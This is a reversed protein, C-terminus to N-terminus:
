PQELLTLLRPDRKYIDPRFGLNGEDDVMATWYVILLPVRVPLLVNLPKNAEDSQAFKKVLTEPASEFLLETLSLANEVRVCGSSYFRKDTAFLRKSPTDHLFITYRNPFRLAVKGLAAGPGADQRLTVPGPNEWDIDEPNLENGSTDLVRLKHESLYNIDERVAPLVDKRLITPPVFWTPNLTVHTITSKLTPTKRKPRGAQVKASFRTTCEQVYSIQAGAIDV